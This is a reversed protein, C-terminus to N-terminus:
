SDSARQAEHAKLAADILGTTQKVTEQMDFDITGHVISFVTEVSSGEGVRELAIRLKVIGETKQKGGGQGPIGMSEIEKSHKFTYTLTLKEQNLDDLMWKRDGFYQTSLAEKIERLVYLPTINYLKAPPQMVEPSTLAGATMWVYIGVGLGSGALFAMGHDRCLFYFINMAVFSAVVGVGVAKVQNGKGKLETESPIM